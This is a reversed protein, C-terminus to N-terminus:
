NRYTAAGSCHPTAHPMRAEVAGQSRSVGESLAKECTRLSKWSAMRGVERIPMHKRHASVGLEANPPVCCDCHRFLGSKRLTHPSPPCISAPNMRAFTQRLRKHIREDTRCHRQARRFTRPSWEPRRVLSPTRELRLLGNCKCRTFVMLFLGRLFGLFSSECMGLASVLTTRRRTPSSATRGPAHIAEPRLAAHPPRGRNSSDTKAKTTKHTPFCLTRRPSGYRSSRRRAKLSATSKGTLTPRRASM